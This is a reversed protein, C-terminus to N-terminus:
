RPGGHERNATASAPSEVAPSRFGIDPRESERGLVWDYVRAVQEAKRKWTFFQNVRMRAQRGAEDIAAPDKLIEALQETLSARIAARDGLPVKWGTGEVVLEGPGGYDVILPAIGLAMAELVVGGGFERISPFLFLDANEMHGRVDKHEVWGHFTVSDELGHTRVLSELEGREPGDGILDLTMRGRKLFPVAAEIALDACKYPVLRGTFVARIPSAASHTRGAGGFLEPNIANEPIYVMKDDCWRPMQERTADSAVILATAAKRMATAGPMRKYASRVYTLWEREKRRAGDFEKPWPLGGNLPGAMFPVGARKCKKAIRSPITPSLPTVRHVIDYEGARIAKGFRKWVLHEFWYYSLGAVATMTTWGKGKGGRLISGMKYIPGAVAESDIATWRSEDLGTRRIAEANRIQTVMHADVEDLLARALSWGVLPVSVWEPNAAEAIILVRPSTM